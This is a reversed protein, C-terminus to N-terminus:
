IQAAYGSGSLQVSISFVIEKLSPVRNESSFGPLGGLDM